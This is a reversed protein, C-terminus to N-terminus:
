AEGQVGRRVLRGNPTRFEWFGYRYLEPSHPGLGRLLTGDWWADRAEPSDWKWRVFASGAHILGHCGTTGSGCLTALPSRLEFGHLEFSAGNRRPQIHHVSGAPKGCMACFPIDHVYGSGGTYHAGLHPKGYLEAREISMGRLLSRDM